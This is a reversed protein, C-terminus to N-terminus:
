SAVLTNRTQEEKKQILVYHKQMMMLREKMDEAEEPFSSGMGSSGARSQIGGGQKKKFNAYWHFLQPSSVRPLASQLFQKLKSRLDSGWKKTCLGKFTPHEM